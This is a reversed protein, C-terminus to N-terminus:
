LAWVSDLRAFIFRLSAWENCVLGELGHKIVGTYLANHDGLLSWRLVWQYPMHKNGYM